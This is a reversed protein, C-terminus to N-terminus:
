LTVKFALKDGIAGERHLHEVHEVFAVRIDTRYQDQRKSKRFESAFQPHNEWFDARVEPQTTWIVRNGQLKM